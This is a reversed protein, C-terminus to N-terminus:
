DNDSTSCSSDPVGKFHIFLSLLAREENRCKLKKEIEIGLWAPLLAAM